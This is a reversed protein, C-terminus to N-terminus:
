RSPLASSSGFRLHRKRGVRAVPDALALRSLVARRRGIVLLAAPALTGAPRRSLRHGAPHFPLQQRLPRDLPRGRGRSQRPDPRLSRLEARVTVILVLTAAPLLRRARRAYFRQISIGDTERVEKLLLGTILFGSLVFFVDVGVYGGSVQALGAHDLLVLLVAIARLGEIDPRFTRNRDTSSAAVPARTGM